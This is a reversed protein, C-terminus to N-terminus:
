CYAKMLYGIVFCRYYVVLLLERTNGPFLVDLLLLLKGLISIMEVVYSCSNVNTTLKNVVTDNM